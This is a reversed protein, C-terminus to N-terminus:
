IHIDMLYQDEESGDDRFASYRKTQPNRYRCIQRIGQCVTMPLNPNRDGEADSPYIYIGTEQKKLNKIKEPTLVSQYQLRKRRPSVNRPSPSKKKKKKKKKRSEDESESSSSSSSSVAKKRKRVTKKKPKTTMESDSSGSSSYIRNGVVPVLSRSSSSEEESDSSFDQLFQETELQEVQNLLDNVVERAIELSDTEDNLAVTAAPKIKIFKKAYKEIEPYKRLADMWHQKRLQKQVANRIKNLQKNSAKHVRKLERLDFLAKPYASLSEFDKREYRKHRQILNMCELMFDIPVLRPHSM